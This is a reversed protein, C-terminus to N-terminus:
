SSPWRFWPIFSTTDAVDFVFSRSDGAHVFGIAPSYGLALIVAECLGYLAANVGALAANVPDRLDDRTRGEWAVGYQKALRSYLAKVRGGEIGRLQEISLRPPAEEGFMLSFIRRAIALRSVQDAHLVAQRVLQSPHGRPNGAAYIRVGQEGSWLLLTKEKACLSVAAHTVTTGPGVLIAATIGVPIITDIADQRLVLSHGEKELIGRDAYILSIRDSVPCSTTALM